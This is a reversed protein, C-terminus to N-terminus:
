FPLDDDEEDEPMFSYLETSPSDWPKLFEKQFFSTEIGCHPCYRANRPLPINQLHNKCNDNTCYNQLDESCIMCFNDNESIQENECKPCKDFTFDDYIMKGDGTWKLDTKGCYICYHIKYYYMQNKCNMCEYKYIYKCFLDLIKKDYGSSPNRNKLWRKYESFRMESAYQSINCMSSLIWKTDIPNKNHALVIHPVLILAAFYDAEEEFTNYEHCSIYSRFVRTKDSFLHHKLAIHGLEHAITWRYRKSSMLNSDTDNYYAIYQNTNYNYDTFGDRSGSFILMEEKSFGSQKMQVSYPILRVNKQSKVIYKINVPLKLIDCNNLVSIVAAKIEKRRKKSIPM